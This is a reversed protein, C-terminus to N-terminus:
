ATKVCWWVVNEFMVGGAGGGEKTGTTPTENDIMGVGVEVISDATGFGLADLADSLTGQWATMGVGTSDDDNATLTGEDTDGLTVVSGTM